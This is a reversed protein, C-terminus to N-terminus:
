WRQGGGMGGGRGGGGGMGRGGGRGGGGGMGRGGGRGMGFHSPVNAGSVSQLRGNLYADIATQVNGSAGIYTTLGLSQLASIANPGVNGTIVVQAGSNGITQAAQIGAGGGAMMAGNELTQVSTIQGNRLEVLTFARCRGFRPDVQANLGDLSQSTVAVIENGKM